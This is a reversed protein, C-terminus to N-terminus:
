FPSANAWSPQMPVKIFFATWPLTPDITKKREYDVYSFGLASFFAICLIINIRNTYRRTYILKRINM